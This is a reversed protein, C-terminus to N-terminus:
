GPRAALAALFGLGVYVLGSAYREGRSFSPHRRLWVGIGGALLVYACDTLIAVGVFIGGLLLVQAALAGRAPDTFQPLFALFFLATKPNLIAVLFAQGLVTRGPVGPTAHAALGPASRDLLKRAGLLVLYGAGLWRVVAFALPSSALLAALGLATAAALVANGLGIGLVSLFGARRGQGMSRAVIFLVAPGPTLTLALTAALFVPLRAPV